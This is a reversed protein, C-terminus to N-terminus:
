FSQKLYSIPIPIVPPAYLSLFESVRSRAFMERSIYWEMTNSVSSGVVQLNTKGMIRAEVARPTEFNSKRRLEEPIQAFCLEGFERISSLNPERGTWATWSNGKGGTTTKNLVVAAYRAAYDWYRHALPTTDLMASIMEKVTRNFREIIGNLEPAYRPSVQHAIGTSAHFAAIWEHISSPVAM